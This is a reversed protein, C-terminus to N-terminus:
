NYSNRYNSLFTAWLRNILKKIITHKLAKLNKPMYVQFNFNILM